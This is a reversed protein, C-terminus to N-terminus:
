LNIQLSDLIFERSLSTSKAIDEISKGQESLRLCVARMSEGIEVINMDPDYFRIVRQLWPQTKIDHILEFGENKIKAAIAEIDDDEFYLEFDNGGKVIKKSDILKQFHEQEHISFDGEFVVNAGYDNKVIQGLVNQYFKKSDSISKVTVLPCVFKIM